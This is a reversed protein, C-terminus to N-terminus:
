AREKALQEFLQALYLGRAESNYYTWVHERAAEGMRLRLINDSALRYMAESMDNIAGEITEANSIFSTEEAGPYPLRGRLYVIPRGAAMAEYCVWGPENHLNPFMLVDSQALNNLAQQRTNNEFLRFKEGLKLELALQKIEDALAGSGDHWYEANPYRELLRAFARMGLHIGKWGLLRGMSIFRIPSPNQRISINQLKELEAVPLGSQGFHIVNKAGLKRVKDITLETPVLAITASRATAAVTPDLVCALREVIRKRRDWDITERDLTSYFNSPINEGGGLPGWIFPVPLRRLFSPRWYSGFTLHMTGDFGVQDHLSAALGYMWHQWFYYHVREYQVPKRWGILWKPLDGFVWHVNPLPNEAIHAEIEARNEENVLAWIDHYRSLEVITIWGNGHESGRNPACAYASVLLKLRTKPPEEVKVVQELAASM